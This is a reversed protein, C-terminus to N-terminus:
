PGLASPVAFVLEVLVIATVLLFLRVYDYQSM